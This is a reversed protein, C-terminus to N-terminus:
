HADEHPHDHRSTRGEAFRNRDKLVRHLASVGGLYAGFAFGGNAIGIVAPSGEIGLRNALRADDDIVVPYPLALRGMWAELESRSGATAVVTLGDQAGSGSLEEGILKCVRCLPSIFLILRGREADLDGPLGLQSPRAQFAAEPLDFAKTYDDGEKADAVASRLLETVALGIFIVMLLSLTSIILAAITM